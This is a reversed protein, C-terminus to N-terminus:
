ASCAALRKAQRHGANHQGFFEREIEATIKAMLREDEPTLPPPIRTMKSDDAFWVTIRESHEKAM